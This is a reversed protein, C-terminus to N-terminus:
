TVREYVDKKAKVMTILYSVADQLKMTTLNVHVISSPNELASLSRIMMSGFTFQRKAYNRTKKAIIECLVSRAHTGYDGNRVFHVMDDYGLIKKQLVFEQWAPSLLQVEKIWGDLMDRTRQDIREYLDNRERTLMVFIYPGFSRYEPKYASPLIGTEYWINLARKVRYTDHPHITQARHPDISHLLEWSYFPNADISVTKMEEREKFPFLLSKCYFGSGGVVIPSKNHAYARAIAATAEHAYQAATFTRPESVIDFLDHGVDLQDLVPKATGISLPMYFQGLDCNIMTGSIERALGIALDTKGAATPGYIIFAPQRIRENQM